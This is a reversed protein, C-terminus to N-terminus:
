SARVEIRSRLEAALRAWAQACGSALEAISYAAHTPIEEIEQPWYGPDLVRSDLWRLVNRGTESYRLAPDKKIGQLLSSPPGKISSVMADRVIREAGPSRDKVAAAPGSAVTGHEQTLPEGGDRLRRRVDRATGVSVGAAAAVERLSAQPRATIIEAARRRREASNVPRVKGDRGVRSSVDGANSGAQERMARVTKASLGTSTAIARDSWEPHADLIREAAARRDGLTLPLGHTINAKVAEVFAAEAEGEFFVARITREGNLRAAQLRHMGDIVRMTPRHVLVPPLTTGAEALVRTHAENEGELRPSDALKLSSVDLTVPQQEAARTAEQGSGETGYTSEAAMQVRGSKTTM